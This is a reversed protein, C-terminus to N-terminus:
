VQKRIPKGFLGSPRIMLVAILVVFSVVRKFTSSVMVGALNEIVGVLLGGVVAGYISTFGGVIAAVFGPILVGGLETNIGVLPAILMGAVGGLATGLAWTKSFIGPVSIGMLAAAEQSQATARMAKGLRSYRFFLTLAVVVVATVLMIGLREPTILVGGIELPQASLAGEITRPTDQLTLRIGNVILLGIALTALIVTFPPSKILPRYAVREIVVGVLASAVMVLALSLFYPLHLETVFLWGMYAGVTVSEGQAFNVIDTAKYILVLGIAVLAYLSGAAIGSVILQPLLDWM